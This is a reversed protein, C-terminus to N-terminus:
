MAHLGHLITFPVLKLYFCALKMWEPHLHVKVFVYLALVVVFFILLSM